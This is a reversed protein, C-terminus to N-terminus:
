PLRKALELNNRAAANEPSLALAHEWYKAAEEREGRRYRINGAKLYVDSGLDARIRITRQYCELADDYRANRYHLDGLNKHVQPLAPEEVAAREAASLAEQPRGRREYGAALDNHLIASHPHRAIGANWQALAGELDGSVAAIVGAYHYWAPPRSRSGFAADAAMLPQQAAAFDRRRVALALRALHVAPDNPATSAAVDLTSAADEPRGSLSLALAYNVQWAVGSGPRAAGVSFIRVADDNRRERLAILGTVFEAHTDRPRLEAVRRFERLAEAYMATKYFAIGLNRHEAVRVDITPGATPERRGVPHVFGATMLGFLAKAVDFEGLGTEDILATVDREGNLLPVLSEQEPTLAVGSTELRERDLGYV